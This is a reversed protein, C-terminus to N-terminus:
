YVHRTAEFNSLAEQLLNLYAEGYKELSFRERAYAACVSRDLQETREIAEALATRDDPPVIYGSVGEAILERASGRDYMIVPTGAAMAEVVVYGFPKNWKSPVLLVQAHSLADFLIKQHVLGHYTVYPCGQLLPEIREHFYSIDIPRPEGYISLKRGLRRAVAIADEVGKTPSIRGVFALTGDHWAGYPITAFDCGNYIYHNVPYYPQWQQIHAQSVGVINLSIRRIKCTYLAEKMEPRTPNIHLTHVIPKRILNSLMFPLGVVAHNHLVDISSDDLADAIAQYIIADQRARLIRMEEGNMEHVARPYCLPEFVGCSRLEVGPIVSGECAYCVVEVGRQLLSIALHYLATGSGGQFPDAIPYWFPSLLAVKM